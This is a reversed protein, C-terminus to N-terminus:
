PQPEDTTAQEEARTPPLDFQAYELVLIRAAQRKANEKLWVIERMNVCAESRLSRIEIEGLRVAHDAIVLKAELEEVTEPYPRQVNGYTM